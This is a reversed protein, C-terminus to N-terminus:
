FWRYRRGCLVTHAQPCGQPGTSTRVPLRSHRPGAYYVTYVMLLTRAYISPDVKSWDRQGTEAMHRRYTADYIVWSPWKFQRSARMIDRSYALLEPIHETDRTALVSTYVSFCQMWTTLDPILKRQNTMAARKTTGSASTKNGRAPPLDNFDVYEWNLIKDVLKRQMTPIGRGLSTEAAPKGLSSLAAALSLHPASGSSSLGASSSPVTRATSASSYVGTGPPLLPLDAAAILFLWCNIPFWGGASWTCTSAEAQGPLCGSTITCVHPSQGRAMYSHIVM